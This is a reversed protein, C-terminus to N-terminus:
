LKRLQRLEQERRGLKKVFQEMLEKSRDRVAHMTAIVEPDGSLPGYAKDMAKVLGEKFQQAGAPEQILLANAFFIELAFELMTLRAFVESADDLQPM